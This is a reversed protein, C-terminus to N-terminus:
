ESVDSATGSAAPAACVSPYVLNEDEGEFARVLAQALRAAIDFLTRWEGGALYKREFCALLGRKTEKDMEAEAGREAMVALAAADAIPRLPEMLDDALCFNDYRNHHHVGISPHLGSACIARAVIARLVAYGYNLFRNQDGAEPDRRFSESGFIRAWYRRAAQAEVNTPDGSRVRPVLAALGADDGRVTKLLEAQAAIKARVIRQWLRKRLPASAAVQLGLREAQLHHGAVPLLMAAPRRKEDCAIFAGGRGALHALAAVSCSVRPHAAVIAALEDFPVRVPEDADEVMIELLGDSVHLRAARESIDIIRDTM